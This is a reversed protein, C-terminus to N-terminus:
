RGDPGRAHARTVRAIWTEAALQTEKEYARSRAMLRRPAYLPIPTCEVWGGCFRRVALILLKGVVAPVAASGGCWVAANFSKLLKSTVAAFRRVASIPTM